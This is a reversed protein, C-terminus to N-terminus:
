EEEEDNLTMTDLFRTFLNSNVIPRYQAIGILVVFVSMILFNGCGRQVLNGTGVSFMQATYDVADLASILGLVSVISAMLRNKAVVTFFVSANIAIVIGAFCFLTYLDNSNGAIRFMSIGSVSGSSTQLWPLFFTMGIIVYSLVFYKISKELKGKM